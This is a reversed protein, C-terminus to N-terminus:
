SRRRRRKKKLGIGYSTFIREVSRVSLSFGEAQLMKQIEAANKEPFEFRLAIARQVAEDTRRYNTRPGRRSRWLGKMGEKQFASLKHYYSETSKYGYQRCLETISIDSTEGEYLMLLDLAERDKAEVMFHGQPGEFICLNGQREM